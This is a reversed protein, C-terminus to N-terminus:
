YRLFICFRYKDVALKLFEKDLRGNKIPLSTKKKEVNYERLALNIIAVRGTKEQESKLYREEVAKGIM